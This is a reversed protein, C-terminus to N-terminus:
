KKSIINSIIPATGAFLASAGYFLKGTLLCCIGWVLLGAGAMLGAARGAKAIKPSPNRLKKSKEIVSCTFELPQRVAKQSAKLIKEQNM